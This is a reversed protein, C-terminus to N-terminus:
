KTKTSYIPINDIIEGIAKDSSKITKTIKKKTSKNSNNSLIGSSNAIPISISQEPISKILSGSRPSVSPFKAQKDNSNPNSNAYICEDYVEEIDPNVQKEKNLPKDKTKHSDKINYTHTKKDFDWKAKTKEPDELEEGLRRGYYDKYIWALVAFDALVVLILSARATSLFELKGSSKIRYDLYVHLLIYLVIGIIAARCNRQGDTLNQWLFSQQLLYIIM